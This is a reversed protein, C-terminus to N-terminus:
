GSGEQKCLFHRAHLTECDASRSRGELIMESMVLGAGPGNQIGWEDLGTAIWLGEPGGPGLIPGVEEGDAHPPIQAKYCAQRVLVKGDRIVPSVAGM